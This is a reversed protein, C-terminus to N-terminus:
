VREASDFDNESAFITASNSFYLSAASSEIRDSPMSSNQM